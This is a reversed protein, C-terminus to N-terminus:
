HLDEHDLLRNLLQLGIAFMAIQRQHHDHHLPCMSLFLLAEIFRVEELAFDGGLCDRYTRLVAPRIEPFFQELTVADDDLEVRFMDHILFDYGGHISHLLKAADYRPDGYLGAGAFSGRVDILKFAHSLPDYLINPFCLDGHIIQARCNAALATVREQASDVLQPWGRLRKRNVSISEAEVLRQAWESQRAFAEVRLLTKTWYFRAVDSAPLELRYEAFCALVERLRSFIREWAAPEYEEFAWLESLTPYGYYELTLFTDEPAISFDLVRPFFSALNNPLLRYYNIEDIFKHTNRSRKTLTGRLEDLELSNFTRASILRRRSGILLDMNGCDLWEAAPLAQLSGRAIYPELFHRLELRADAPQAELGARGPTADAVEYVGMLVPWDEPREAPKDALSLIKGDADAEAFCWRNSEAAGDATLVYDQGSGLLAADPTKFITDGLVVLVGEEVLEAKLCELLTAGPGRDTTIEPFELQFHSSFVQTVFRRLRDDGPNTGIVARDVGIEKLYSLSWHIVPRGNVPLMASSTHGYAAALSPSLRGAALIVATPASM